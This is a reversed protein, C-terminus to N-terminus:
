EITAGEGLLEKVAQVPLPDTKLCTRLDNILTWWGADRRHKLSEVIRESLPLGQPDTRTGVYVEEIAQSPRPGRRGLGGKNLTPM